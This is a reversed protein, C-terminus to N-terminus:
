VLVYGDIHQRPPSSIKPDIFYFSVNFHMYERVYLCLQGRASRSRTRGPARDRNMTSGMRTNMGQEEELRLWVDKILLKGECVRAHARM